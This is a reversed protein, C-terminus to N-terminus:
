DHDAEPTAAPTKPTLVYDSAFTKKVGERIFMLTLEMGEAKEHEVGGFYLMGEAKMDDLLIDIYNATERWAGREKELQAIREADTM